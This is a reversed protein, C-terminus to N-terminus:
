YTIKENMFEQPRAGVGEALAVPGPDPTGSISRTGASGPSRPLAAGGRASLMSM